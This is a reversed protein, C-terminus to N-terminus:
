LIYRILTVQALFLTHQQMFNTCLHMLCISLTHQSIKADEEGHLTCKEGDLTVALGARM